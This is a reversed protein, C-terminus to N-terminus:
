ERLATLPDIRAARRAPLYGAVAAITLMLVTASALAIPDGPTIGYLFGAAVRGGALALGLGGAIGAVTLVMAERMVLGLVTRREAGLAMRIGIEGTRRAVVHAMLGGLAGCALLLSVAGLFTAIVTMLRERVLSESVRDAATEIQMPASPDLSRAAERLAGVVSSPAVSTRVEAVLNSGAHFEALQLYPLFATRPAPEQLRRYVADGVVGVIELNRRSAHLGISIRRGIAPRAGFAARALSESVVVVRPAGLRDTWAIDRGAILPTGLTHFYGPSVANFLTLSQGRQPEAGDVGISRSGWWQEESIPPMWSLSASQVGPVARLSELLRAYFAPAGAISGAAAGAGTERALADASVVVLNRRDFGADSTLLHALSRTFLAAGVLLLLSLAIQAAILAKATRWSTAGATQQRSGMQLVVGPDVRLVRLVPAVTFAVTTLGVTGAIFALVRWDVSLDLVIPARATSLLGVLAESAWASFLLGAVGGCIALTVGELVLQQVLRHRHAGMALRLALERQRSAAAALLLNAVTACSVLLLLGVLGFLLWLPQSFQSRVSSSGTAGSTLSAQRSLFYARREPSGEEGTTAQLVHPWITQFAADAQALSMGPRTRGMVRLWSRGADLLGRDEARLRPLMTLPITVEPSTGVAVGFFGPPTVGVITFPQGEIRLARGVVAPDGNFRRQWATHSIVAVADAAAGATADAETLLRGVAPRVGLTDHFATTVLLSSSLEPEATWAVRLPRLHWAFLDAFMGSRDRVERYLSFSFEGEGLVVLEGPAAVPLPRLVLANVLTFVTAAAGIGCSLALVAALGLARNRLFLRWAFHLDRRIEDFTIAM